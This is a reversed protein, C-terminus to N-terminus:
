SVGSAAQARLEAFVRRRVADEQRETLATFRVSAEWRGDERPYRRVLRVEDTMTEGDLDLALRMADGSARVPRGDRDAPEEELLLRAGGESLDLTTGTREIGGTTVIVPLRLDARVANRRQTQEVPGLVRVEWRPEEGLEVAVLEGPAAVMTRGDRWTFRLRAGPELRIPRGSMTRAVTVHVTGGAVDLVTATAGEDVGEAQVDVIERVTPFELVQGAGM